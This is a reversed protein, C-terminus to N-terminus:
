HAIAAVSKIVDDFTSLKKEIKEGDEEYDSFTATFSRLQGQLCVM